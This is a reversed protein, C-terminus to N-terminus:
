QEPTLEVGFGCQQIQGHKEPDFDPRVECFLLSGTTYDKLIHKAALFENPLNRGTFWGHKSAFLQLFTSVNYLSSNRAPMEIKYQIELFEKSIRELILSIPGVYDRMTDIPLVGCIMMEAKTNAFSPFVLGPCDCLQLDLGLNHTQFHKTKGPLSAVGVKKEALLVNIVSSKGVNPYGVTGVVLRDDEIGLESRRQRLLRLLQGRSLLKPSNFAVPEQEDDSDSIKPKKMEKIEEKELHHKFETAFGGVPQAEPEEAQQEEQDEESESNEEVGVMQTDKKAKDIRDQEAKASFFVHLVGKQNFYASWHEMLEPSLYDAKNILLIFKKDQSVESIYKELDPCYFFYPNRADVIQLLLDSKEIVRWLQKWIEINKEFPTIALQVNNEEMGAIDRRWELFSANEQTQIELATM